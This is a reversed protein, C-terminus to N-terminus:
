IDDHSANGFREMSIGLTKNKHNRIERSENAYLIHFQCWFTRFKISIENSHKLTLVPLEQKLALLSIGQIQKGNLRFYKHSEFSFMDNWNIKLRAKHILWKSNKKM